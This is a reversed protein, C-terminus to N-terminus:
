DFVAAIDEVGIGEKARRLHYYAVCVMLVFLVTVVVQIAFNIILSVIEVVGTPIGTLILLQLSLLPVLGSAIGFMVAALILIGFIKWRHGKTLRASRGFCGYVGAREVVLAPIVVFFRVYLWIVLIFLAVGVIAALVGGVVGGVLAAFAAVAAGGVGAVLMILLGLLISVGLVPLFRSLGRAISQGLTPPNGRLAEFTSFTTAALLLFYLVFYLVGVVGAAISMGEAGITEPDATGVMVSMFGAGGFILVFLLPPLFMITGLALFHVLHDRFLAFGGGIVAGIRFDSHFAGSPATADTM